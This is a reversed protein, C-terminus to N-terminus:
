VSLETWRSEYLINQDGQEGYQRELFQKAKGLREIFEEPKITGSFPNRRIKMGSIYIPM